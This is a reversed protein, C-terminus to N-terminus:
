NSGPSMQSVHLIKRTRPHSQVFFPTYPSELLEVNASTRKTGHGVEAQVSLDYEYTGNVSGM